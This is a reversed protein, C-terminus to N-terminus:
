NLLWIHFNEDVVVTPKGAKGVLTGRRSAPEGLQDITKVSLSVTRSTDVPSLGDDISFDCQGSVRCPGSDVTPPGAGAAPAGYKDEFIKKLKLVEKKYESSDAFRDTLVQEPFVPKGSQMALIELTFDKEESAPQPRQKPPADRSADWHDYIQSELALRLDKENEERVFAMYKLNEGALIKQLCARGMECQ